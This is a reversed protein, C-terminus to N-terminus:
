KKLLGSPYEGPMFANTAVEDVKVKSDKAIIGNEIMWKRATEWEALNLTGFQGKDDFLDPEMLRAHHLLTDVSYASNMKNLTEALMQTKTRRGIAIDAGRSVARLFRCTAAGNKTLFQDSAAILLWPYNPVGHDRYKFGSLTKPGGIGAMSAPNTVVGHSADIKKDLMLRAWGFGPDVITVDNLTLNATALLAKLYAREDLKATLGITKGKLDAVKAIPTDPLWFMAASLNRQLAAITKVPIGKDRASFMAPVYSIAFDVKNTVLLKIPDAVSPPEIVNVEIGEEAFFGETEAALFPAWSFYPLWDMMMTMKKVEPAKTCLPNVEALAPNPLGAAIAAVVALAMGGNLITRVISM